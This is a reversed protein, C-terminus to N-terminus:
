MLAIINEDTICLDKNVATFMRSKLQLASSIM